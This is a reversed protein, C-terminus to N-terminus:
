IKVGPIFTDNWKMVKVGDSMKIEVLLYARGFIFM